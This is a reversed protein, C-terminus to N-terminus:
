SAAVEIEKVECRRSDKLLKIFFGGVVSRNQFMIMEATKTDYWDMLPVRSPSDNYAQWVTHLIKAFEEKSEFLSAFFILWDSKSYEARNDLPLGYPNLRKRGYDHTEREFDQPSFLQWGWLADWVANYKLSFSGAKDFALMYTGDPNKARALWTQKMEYATKWYFAAEADNGTMRNLLFFAVVGLIGKLTLNVNFALHGAFDDTCLQADDDFTHKVLYDAWQKLHGGHELAFGTDGQAISLSCTLILMNGCEEIPMQDKLATGGGYVQGNLIPYTGVDHPAFDHIWEGTAAYRFVPRLMGKLLEPAYLLFLPAAPLAVDVTAACGNSFCEKSIFLLEGNEDRCLKHAAISQRYALSLLEAYEEGGSAVADKHLKAAFQGCREYIDAYDTLANAIATEITHEESKWYADLQKGFYEISKVDDYALALLVEREDSVVFDSEFRLDNTQLGNGGKGSIISVNGDCARAALYFYGWNIRMDDGCQALVNQIASGVRACAVGRTGVTGAVTRYEGKYNLAIEDNAVVELRIKHSQGDKVGVSINMYSVPRSVLLFDDLLLPSTFVIAVSVRECAFTYRTSLADVTVALQPIAPCTEDKGMFIYKEGDVWIYGTLRQPKGTWHKTDDGNLSDNFSWVSFYPDSTILPVAPYRMSM